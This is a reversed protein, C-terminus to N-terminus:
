KCQAELEKIRAALKNLEGHPDTVRRGDPGVLFSDTSWYGNYDGGRWVRRNVWKYPNESQEVENKGAYKGNYMDSYDTM